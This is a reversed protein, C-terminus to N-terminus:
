IGEGGAGAQAEAEAGPDPESEADRVPAGPAAALVRKLLKDLIANVFAPSKETSFEKALEVAENVVIKPPTVSAAAAGATGGMMEYHALRLLDRDVAPQRQAPWTPALEKIAEDAIRRDKYAALAMDMARDVHTDSVDKAGEDASAHLAARVEAPDSDPRADLQFLAQFALRRIARKDASM